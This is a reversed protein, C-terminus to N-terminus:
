NLLKNGETEIEQLFDDITRNGLIVDHLLSQYYLTHITNYEPIPTNISPYEFGYIFEKFVPNDNFFDTDVMDKRVPVRYPLYGEYEQVYEGNMVLNLAEISTMYDMFKIAAERKDNEINSSICLMMPGVESYGGIKSLSIAGVEFPNGAKWIDTVGWPGQIEFAVEQNRFATMVDGGNANEWDDQAYSGLDNIYFELANKSEQSNISIQSEDNNVLSGGFSYIFQTSMWSLDHHNAGVLGIGSVETEDEITMLADILTQYSNITSPDVGAVDLIDKNYILSMSHGVWPLGYLENDVKAMDLISPYYSGLKNNFDSELSDLEGLSGYKQVFRYPLVYVDINGEDDLFYSDVTEEDEDGGVLAVEIDDNLNNFRKVILNISEGRGSDEDWTIRFNIKTVQVKTECGSLLIASSFLMMIVLLKRM